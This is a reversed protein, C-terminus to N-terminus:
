RSIGGYRMQEARWADWERQQIEREEDEMGGVMRHYNNFSNRQHVIRRMYMIMVFNNTVMWDTVTMTVTMTM